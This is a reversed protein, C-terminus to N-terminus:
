NYISDNMWRGVEVWGDRQDMIPGLLCAIELGHLGDSSISCCGVAGEMASESFSRLSAASSSRNRVLGNATDTSEVDVRLWKVNTDIVLGRM